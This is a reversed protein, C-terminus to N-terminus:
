FPSPPRVILSGVCSAFPHAQVRLGGASELLENHEQAQLQRLRLVALYHQPNPLTPALHAPVAPNLPQQRHREFLPHLLVMKVMPAYFRVIRDCLDAQMFCTRAPTVQHM